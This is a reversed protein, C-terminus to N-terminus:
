IKCVELVNSTAPRRLLSLGTLRGPREIEGSMWLAAVTHYKRSDFLVSADRRRVNVGTYLFVTSGIAAKVPGLNPYGRADLVAPFAFNARVAQGSSLKLFNVFAFSQGNQDFGGILVQRPVCFVDNDDTRGAETCQCRGAVDGVARCREHGALVNQSGNWNDDTLDATQEFSKQGIV